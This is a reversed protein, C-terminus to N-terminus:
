LGSHRPLLYRLAVILAYLYRQYLALSETEQHVIM